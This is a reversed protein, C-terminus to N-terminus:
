GNKIFPETKCRWTKNKEFHAQSYVWVLKLGKRYWTEFGISRKKEFSTAIKQQKRLSEFSDSRSNFPNQIFDIWFSSNFPQQLEISLSNKNKIPLEIFRQNVSLYGNDNWQM